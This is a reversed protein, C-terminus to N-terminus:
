ADESREDLADTVDDLEGTEETEEVRQFARVANAIETARQERNRLPAVPDLGRLSPLFGLNRLRQSQGSETDHPDVNGLRVDLAFDDRNPLVLRVSRRSPPLAESLRGDGDTTGERPNALGEIRYPENALISDGSGLTLRLHVRPQSASYRNTTNPSVHAPAPEEEEDPIYLLDGPALVQPSRRLERLESNADDQWVEEADFGYTAALGALHDGQRIIYPRMVM